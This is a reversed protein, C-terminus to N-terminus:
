YFADIDSLIADLIEMPSLALAKTCQCVLCEERYKKLDGKMGEWYLEGMLREYTRSYVSDHYTHLITPLLSSSKSKVVRDKYKLVGQHLSFDVM